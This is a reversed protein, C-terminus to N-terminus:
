FTGIAVVVTSIIVAWLSLCVIVIAFAIAMGRMWHYFEM